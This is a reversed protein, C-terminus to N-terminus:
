LSFGKFRPIGREVRPHSAAALEEAVEKEIVVTSDRVLASIELPDNDM